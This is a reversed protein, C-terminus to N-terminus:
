SRLLRVKGGVREFLKPHNHVRASIQNPKMAGVRGKTDRYRGRRNVLYAIEPPTLGTLIDAIEDHLFLRTM